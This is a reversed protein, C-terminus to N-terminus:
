SLLRFKSELSNLYKKLAHEADLGKEESSIVIKALFEGLDDESEFNLNANLTPLEQFKAKQMKKLVKQARALAPLGKPIGDLVSKREEKGKETLKIKEWSTLLEDETKIVANEFVHPHRRILKEKIEILAHVMKTRSEKEALRSLFIVNFFLDGLEEEIHQNDESDIAEILECVEELVDSRITKMTQKKDWPCGNEGLLHDVVTVLEDFEKM